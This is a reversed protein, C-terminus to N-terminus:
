AGARDRVWQSLLWKEGRTPPTGAHLTRPDPVGNRDLNGFYLAGGARGKHALALVPFDTEGGDFDDNLYVLFTVMRQGRRAFDAAQGPASPDLYDRHPAFAEGVDYHLIQAPELFGTPVGITAAIRAKVMLVVMDLDLVNIEFASNTRFALKRPAASEDGYLLAPELRARAREILWDCAKPPLFREIAVVRPIQSLVRKECPTIWDALRISDRLRRWQRSDPADLMGAEGAAGGALVALQGRAAASGALAANLLLDFAGEWSQPVGIGDATFAALLCSADPEGAAIAAELAEIGRKLDAPAGGRLIALAQNFAPQTPHRDQTM